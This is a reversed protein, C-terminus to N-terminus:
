IILLGICVVVRGGVHGAVLRGGDGLSLARIGGSLIAVASSKARVGVHYCDLRGLGLVELSAIGGDDIRIGIGLTPIAAHTHEIDRGGWGIEM